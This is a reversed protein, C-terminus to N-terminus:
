HNLAEWDRFGFGRAQLAQRDRQPQTYEEREQKLRDSDSVGDWRAKISMFALTPDSVTVSRGDNFRHTGALLENHTIPKSYEWGGTQRPKRLVYMTENSEPHKYERNIEVPASAVKKGLFYWGDAEMWSETTVVPALDPRDSSLALVLLLLKHYSDDSQFDSAPGVAERVVDAFSNIVKEFPQTVVYSDRAGEATAKTVHINIEAFPAKSKDPQVLKSAGLRLTFGKALVKADSDILTIGGTPGPINIETGKRDPYGHKLQVFERITM